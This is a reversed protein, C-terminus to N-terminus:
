GFLIKEDILKDKIIEYYEHDKQEYKRFIAWSLFDVAQLCKETHSPCIKLYIDDQEWEGLQNRLYSEFNNGRAINTYKKDFFIHILDKIEFLNRNNLRELIINAAYNYLFHNKEQLPVYVKKKNVVIVFIKLDDIEALQRLVRKRTIEDAHYAHLERIRKHKKRLSKHVKKIVKEVKRHNKTILVTFLFYNSSKESFGLDGSEDIFLYAM